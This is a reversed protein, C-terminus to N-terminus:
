VSKGFDDFVLKFNNSNVQRLEQKARAFFNKSMFYGFRMNLRASTNMSAANLTLM